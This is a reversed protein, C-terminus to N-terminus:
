YTKLWTVLIYAQVLSIAILGYTGGVCVFSLFRVLAEQAHWREKASAIYKSM